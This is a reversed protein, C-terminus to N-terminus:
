ESRQPRDSLLSFFVFQPSNSFLRLHVDLLSVCLLKVMAMNIICALAVVVLILIYLIGHERRIRSGILIWFVNSEIATVSYHKDPLRYSLLVMLLNFSSTFCQTLLKPM